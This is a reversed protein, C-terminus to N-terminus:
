GRTLEFVERDLDLSVLEDEVVDPECPWRVLRIRGDSLAIGTIDGDGFSCCGTNFYWPKDLDIPRQRSLRVQEADAWQLRALRLAEAREPDAENEPTTVADPTRAPKKESEYFVPLHTHGAILVHRRSAAWDAMDAAHEGRLAWDVSPTNWPRNLRRQLWRWGHRVLFRSRRAHRDSDLTGQHGHVLFLEGAVGDDPRRLVLRLAEIPVVDGVKYPAMKEQFLGIASWALDHNGWLRTYRDNAHFAAELALSAPYSSAVENFSNEWLEEVDGLAVLRYGLHNYYALAANYARECRQFDDAGDRAGKHQDSLIILRDTALAFDLTGADDYARDLKEHLEQRARRRQRTKRWDRLRRFPTLLHV